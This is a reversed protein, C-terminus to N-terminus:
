LILWKKRRMGNELSAIGTDRVIPIRPKQFLMM